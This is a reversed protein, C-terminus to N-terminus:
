HNHLHHIHLSFLVLDELVTQSKIHLFPITVAEVVVAEPTQKDMLHQPLKFRILEVEEEVVEMLNLVMHPSTTWSWMWRWWWCRVMSRDPGPTGYSAAPDRFVSPLQRGIGGKGGQGPPGTGASGSGGAGGGGGGAYGGSDTGNGGSSGYETAGPNSAPNVASGGNTTSGPGGSAGGGSGGDDGGRNEIKLVM